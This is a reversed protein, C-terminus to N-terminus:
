KINSKVSVRSRHCNKKRKKKLYLYIATRVCRNFEKIIIDVTLHFINKKKYIHMWSLYHKTEAYNLYYQLKSLLTYERFWAVVVGGGVRGFFVWCCCFVVMLGEIFMMLFFWFFFILSNYKELLCQNQVSESTHHSQNIPNRPLVQNWPDVHRFWEFTIFFEMIKWFFIAGLWYAAGSM